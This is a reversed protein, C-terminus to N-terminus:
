ETDKLQSTRGAHTGTRIRCFCHRPSDTRGARRARRRRRMAGMPSCRHKESVGGDGAPQGTAAPVRGRGSCSKAQSDPALPRNPTKM